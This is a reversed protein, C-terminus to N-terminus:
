KAHLCSLKTSTHCMRTGDPTKYDLFECIKTKRNVLVRAFVTWLNTDDNGEFGIFYEYEAEDSNDSPYSECAGSIHNKVYEKGFFDAIYLIAAIKAEDKNWM